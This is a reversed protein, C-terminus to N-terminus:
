ASARQKECKQKQGNIKEMLLRTNKMCVDDMLIAWAEIEYDRGVKEPAPYLRGESIYRYLTRKSKPKAFYSNNWDSLTVRKM